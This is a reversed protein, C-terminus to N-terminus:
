RWAPGERSHLANLSQREQACVHQLAGAGVVCWLELSEPPVARLSGFGAELATRLAVPNDGALRRAQLLVAAAALRVDEEEQSAEGPGDGGGRTLQQALLGAAEQAAEVFAGSVLLREAQPRRCAPATLAVRLMRVPSRADCRM